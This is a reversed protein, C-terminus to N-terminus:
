MDVNIIKQRTPTLSNSEFYEIKYTGKNFIMRLNSAKGYENISFIQTNTSSDYRQIVWNEVFSVAYSWGYLGTIASTGSVKITLKSGKPALAAFGFWGSQQPTSGSVYNIKDLALINVGYLGNEPYNIVTNNIVFNSKNIFNTLYKGFNPISANSGLDNYRKSLNAKIAITDLSVAHNILASSTASSNLVGDERIDTSINSILETMESETRYGQIISSIALLIANDEGASAIDM